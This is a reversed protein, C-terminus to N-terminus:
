FAICQFSRHSSFCACFISPLSGNGLDVWMFLRTLTRHSAKIPPCAIPRNIIKSNHIGELSNRCRSIVEKFKMPEPLLSAAGTKDYKAHKFIESFHGNKKSTYTWRM